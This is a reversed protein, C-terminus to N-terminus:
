YSIIRDVGAGFRTTYIKRNQRDIEFVTFATNILENTPYPNIHRDPATSVEGRYPSVAIDIGGTEPYTSRRATASNCNSIGKIGNRDIVWDLHSHGNITCILDIAGQETFDVNSIIQFPSGANTTKSYTGGNKFANLVGIFQQGNAFSATGDPMISVLSGLVAGSNGILNGHASVIVGWESKDTKDMFNLATNCFWTFQKQRVDVNVPEQFPLYNNDDFFDSTNLVIVRIKHNDFDKYFYGGNPNNEDFMVENQLHKLAIDTWETPTILQERNIEASAGDIWGYFNTDHNGLCPLLPTTGKGIATKIAKPLLNIPINKNINGDIIDGNLITFDILNSNNMYAVEEMKLLKEEVNIHIDNWTAFKFHQPNSIKNELVKLEDLIFSPLNWKYNEEGEDKGWITIEEDTLARNWIRVQGIKLDARPSEYYAAKGIYVPFDNDVYGNEINITNILQGNVYFKQIGPKISVVITSAKIPRGANQSILPQQFGNSNFYLTGDKGDKGYAGLGFGTTTTDHFSNKCLVWNWRNHIQNLELDKIYITIESNSINKLPISVFDDVGDSKLGGNEYGSGDTFNFNELTGHNSNGSLDLLTGKHKDKNTKGRSDLYCVLGDTPINPDVIKGNRMTYLVKRDDIIM